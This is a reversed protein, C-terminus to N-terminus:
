LIIILILWWLKRQVSVLLDATRRPVHLQVYATTLLPSTYYLCMSTYNNCTDLLLPSDADFPKAQWSGMMYESTYVFSPNFQQL